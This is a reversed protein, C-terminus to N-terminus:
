DSRVGGKKDPSGKGCSVELTPEFDDIRGNQATFNATARNAQACLNTSNELLGKAGGQMRLVFKSVPADPVASFTTRIGGRISDVRGDLVIHVQGDLDAVLDPLAHSSSRLYIPGKLPRDLLPSWATGYGYVSGAPCQSASFQVRTCITKIHSQDLFESHPLAVQARDINADGSRPTLTARLAPHASRRTGGSLRLSLRPKFNLGRCGGVQFPASLPATAGGVSRAQGAFSMEACSTPNLIFQPRNLVVRIDRLDLPIGQLYTPLPDSVVTVRATEPDVRLAARVAVTGLDFPGALAPTIVVASLPAGEYPGALYVKGTRVYFPDAGAGAGVIVEGIQSALPCSPSNLEVAGQGLGSRAQAASIASDPCYPIGALKGILGHPLTASVGSLRQTGDRRSLRLGFASYQGALPNSVGAELGPDFQGSPCPAGEPGSDVTFTSNSNVTEGPTPNFPDIASWPSLDSEIGYSGCAPPTILVGRSGEKLHLRVSEFPAEPNEDFTATIRHTVPDIDFRGALKITVGQGQAVLYGSLLTHFPNDDERALYLSGDIPEPLLPTRIEATGVKSSDPCTPNTNDFRIPGGSILGIQSEGCAGLGDAASPNLTLGEPLRVVAKKLHAEAPLNPHKLGEQPLSLSVDMGSPSDASRSTPDLSILPSFDLAGCGTNPPLPAFAEAHLGPLAYPIATINVGGDVGCRTRNVMFPVSPVLGSSRKGNPTEPTGGNHTAEYPTIRQTDHIEAAPVGWLTTNASLLPILSSLGDARATVSYEREPRLETDIMIPFSEGMFGLRAPEGASPQMNYVPEVFQIVGTGKDLNIETVGVQSAQPCGTESSKDEIDTEVLQAATCKPVANPNALLGPPLEFVTDRTTAPLTKKDDNETKLSFNISFDPHAGAEDTSASASASEIGYEGPDAKAATALPTLALALMAAIVAAPRRM